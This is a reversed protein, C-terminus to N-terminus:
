TLAAYVFTGAIVAVWVIWFFLMTNDFRERDRRNLREEVSELRRELSKVEWIRAEDMTRMRGNYLCFM